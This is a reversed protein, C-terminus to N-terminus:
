FRLTLFEAGHDAKITPDVFVKILKEFSYVHLGQMIVTLLVSRLDVKFDIM